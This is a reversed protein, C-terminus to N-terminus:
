NLGCRFLIQDQQQFKLIPEKPWRDIHDASTEFSLYWGPDLQFEKNLNKLLKEATM